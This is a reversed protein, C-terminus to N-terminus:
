GGKIQHKNPASQEADGLLAQLAQAGARREAAEDAARMAALKARDRRRRSLWFPGILLVLVIAALSADAFLALAGYRRRTSARWTNEFGGLTVGYARRVAQDLSRTDRWYEFFLALGREPDLAALDAVARHALAYAQQARTSGGTFM